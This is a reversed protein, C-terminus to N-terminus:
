KKPRLLLQHAASFCRRRALLVVLLSGVATAGVIMVMVVIQYRV